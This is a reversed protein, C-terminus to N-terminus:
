HATLFSTYVSLLFYCEFLLSYYTTLLLYYTTLRSSATHLACDAGVTWWVQKWPPNLLGRVHSSSALVSEQLSLPNKFRTCGPIPTSIGVQYLTLPQHHHAGTTLIAYCLM